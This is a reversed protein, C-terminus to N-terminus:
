RRGDAKGLREKLFGIFTTTKAPPNKEKSFYVSAREPSATAKELVVVLRGQEIDSQASHRPVRVIGAGELAMQVLAAYSNSSLPGNVEVSQSRSGSRFPWEKRGSYANSLCAHGRLDGPDKPTGAAALYAPSACVVYPVACLEEGILGPIGPKHTAVVVDVGDEVLTFNDELVSLHVKLGPHLVSFEAILPALVWRAFNSTSQVRLTGAPGTHLNRAEVVYADLKSLLELCNRLLGEGAETLVVGHTSRNLLQFGLSEELEKMRNSVVSPTTRLDAAAKTFSRREAVRVFTSLRSLDRLPASSM